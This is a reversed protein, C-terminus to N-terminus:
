YAKKYELILIVFILTFTIVQANTKLFEMCLLLSWCLTFTNKLITTDLSKLISSPSWTDM